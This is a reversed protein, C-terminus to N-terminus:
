KFLWWDDNITVPMNRKHKTRDYFSEIKEVVEPLVNKLELYDDIDNYSLGLAEEDPLLPKNDELDAAPVKQYLHQPCNLEVLLDKGQRKTLGALPCLDAAGDGYKTYFGTIAEAAHDTGLVLLNNEGAVAYQIVMRARAKVNGKAFDSMKKGFTNEYNEVIKDVEPKINYTFVRSPSIFDLAAKADEEDAQVGYPLRLAILECCGINDIVLQALKGCLTSDQGGSVGLVFGKAKSVKLYDRMFDCINRIREGPTVGTYVGLEQSIRFQKNGLM